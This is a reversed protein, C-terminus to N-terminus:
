FYNKKYGRYIRWGGYILFVAGFLYDLNTPKRGAFAWGQSKSLVFFLGICLFVFGMVYDMVTRIGTVQKRRKQEYDELM